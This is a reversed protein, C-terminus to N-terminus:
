RGSRSRSTSAGSAAAPWGGSSTAARPSPQPQEGADLLRRYRRMTRPGFDSHTRGRAARVRELYFRSGLSEAHGIVDATPIGHRHQLWRTLRLSARRQAPTGMVQADSHGVHEIGIAVHNLGIVHRCMLRLPVLQHITGDREVVFHTCVGPRERLEPDPANAAFTAFAQGFTDTATFHEVVHRPTRLTVRDLGYHRRAYARMQVRRTPGYPIPTQEIPPREPAATAPAQARAARPARELARIAAVHRRVTAPSPTGAALEVVFASTGPARANQWGAVTGRYRALPRLPLGTRRAHARLLGRDAGPTDVVIGYPQHLWVTVDPVVARVLRMAYRTEPESAARPGPWYRGRAGPRWRHPFNRNLDVGRANGRSGRASGDPNLDRVVVVQAGRAVPARLLADAVRRGGPEDGHMAGVVLVRRPADPRGRREAVIPRGEVSRGAPPLAVPGAPAVPVATAVAAAVAALM